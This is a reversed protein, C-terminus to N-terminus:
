DNSLLRIWSCIRRPPRGGMYVEYFMTDVQWEREDPDYRALESVPLDIAVTKTEGPQLAIKEFGRLLKVPREVVSNAFGVYLQVVEEGAM